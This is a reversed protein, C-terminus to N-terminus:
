SSNSVRRYHTGNLVIEDSSDRQIQHSLNQKSKKNIPQVTDKEVITENHKTPKGLKNIISKSSDNLHDEDTSLHKESNMQKKQVGDKIMAIPLTVAAKATVGVFGIAGLPITGFLTGPITAILSSWGLTGWDDGSQIMSVSFYVPAISFIGTNTYDRKLDQLADRTKIM